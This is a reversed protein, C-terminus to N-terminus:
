VTTAPVSGASNYDEIIAKIESEVDKIKEKYGANVDKQDRKTALLSETLTYVKAEAQAKTMKM